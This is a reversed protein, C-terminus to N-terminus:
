EKMDEFLQYHNGNMGLKTYVNRARENSIDVYLRIGAIEPDADARESIYRYMKAFIGKRRFEPLVYVSQIWWVWANRWDSWEYTILLSAATKGAYEAVYYRGKSPDEFVSKVGVYVLHYDLDLDETEKAMLLQFNAILERQEYAAPTIKIM